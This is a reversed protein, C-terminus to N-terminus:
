AEYLRDNEMLLATHRLTAVLQANELPAAMQDALASLLWEDDDRIEVGPRRIVALLGKVRGKSVLPVGLFGEASGLLGQLRSALSEDFSARFRSIVDHSIGFSAHVHLLGDDDALLLIAKEAELLAAAQEAASRLIESASTAYTLGRALRTLRELREERPTAHSM